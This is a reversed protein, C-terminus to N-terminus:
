LSSIIEGNKYVYCKFTQKTPKSCYVNNSSMGNFYLLNKGGAANIAAYMTFGLIAGLLGGSVIGLASTCSSKYKAVADVAFFILFLLIAQYNWDKNSQMPAAIYALTFLIFFSSASPSSYQGFWSLGLVEDVNFPNKCAAEKDPTQFLAQLGRVLLVGSVNCAFWILVKIDHNIVSSMVLFGTIIVPALFSLYNFFEVLNM